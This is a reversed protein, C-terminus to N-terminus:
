SSTYSRMGTCGGTAPCLAFFLACPCPRVQSFGLVHINEPPWGKGALLKMLKRLATLSQDLSDLRRRDGARLNDPIPNYESDFAAFWARGGETLPVEMPGPLAIAATLPLEMQRALGAYPRATDGLGHMLLLLNHAPGRACPIIHCGDRLERPINEVCPLMRKGGAEVGVLESEAATGGSPAAGSAAPKCSARHAKWDEKQCAASCYHVAKCCSCRSRAPDMGCRACPM